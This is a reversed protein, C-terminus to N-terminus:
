TCSLREKKGNKAVVVSAVLEITKNCHASSM